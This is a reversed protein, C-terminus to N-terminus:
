HLLMPLAERSESVFQAFLLDGSLVKLDKFNEPVQTTCWSLSERESSALGEM